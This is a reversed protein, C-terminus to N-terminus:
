GPACLGVRRGERALPTALLSRRAEAYLCQRRFAYTRRGAGATQALAWGGGQQLAAPIRDRYRDPDQRHRDEADSVSSLPRRAWASVSASRSWRRRKIAGSLNM